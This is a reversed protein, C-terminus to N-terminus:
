WPIVQYTHSLCLSLGTEKSKHQKAEDLSLTMPKDFLMLGYELGDYCSYHLCIPTVISVTWEKPSLATVLMEQYSCLMKIRSSVKGIRYINWILVLLGVHLEILGDMNAVIRHIAGIFRKEVAMMGM